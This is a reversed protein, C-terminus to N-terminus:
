VLNLDCLFNAKSKSTLNQINKNSEVFKFNSKKIACDSLLFCNRTSDVPQAKLTKFILEKFNKRKEKSNM